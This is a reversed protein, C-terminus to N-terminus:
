SGSRAKRLVAPSYEYPNPAGPEPGERVLKMQRAHAIEPLVQRAATLARYKVWASAAEPGEAALARARIGALFQEDTRLDRRWDRQLEMFDKLGHEKYFPAFQKALDAYSIQGVQYLSYLQNWKVLTEGGLNFNMNSYVGNLHPEFAQLLPDMKTGKVSPIWGIIRNFKENNKKAAVFLLFDLAAEPHKCTRTIGFPFGGQPQEYTPGEVVGGYEPDSASPRPFDIVGVTFRGETQQQLSRADWTGTSLFVAKQQAFLFVAEDRSLGTYGAQFNETIERFIKFRAHLSPYDFGLRGSTFAVFQEDNGVFGDRNFDARRMAGYTIPDFMMWEWLGVHYSSGAIPVYMRGGPGPHKKIEACAALFKRYDEPAKDLGTLQKLLERNYFVRVGFQSLTITMYDQLKEYYAGRMGDKMTLRLPVGALETGRNYPNPRGVVSTLPVFYRHLYIEWLQYALGLGVEMMDPATGGILQTTVWPGYTTEPVADQVIRVEPHLQQYDRALEAIAERVSTELQWHGMRLTITGAPAEATRSMLITACAWGFAGLLLVIPLIKKM